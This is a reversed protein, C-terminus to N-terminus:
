GAIRRMRRLRVVRDLPPQGDEGDRSPVLWARLRLLSDALFAAVDPSNIAPATESLALVCVKRAEAQEIWKLPMMKGM